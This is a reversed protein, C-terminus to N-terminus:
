FYEHCVQLLCMLSLCWSLKIAAEDFQLYIKPVFYTIEGPLTAVVHNCLAKLVQYALCFCLMQIM